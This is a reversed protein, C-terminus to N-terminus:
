KLRIRPDIVSYLLDVIFNCAVVIVALYLVLGQILPLDRTSISTSVLKGIGPLSFVNEIIISGGLVDTIIMGFITLVPILSNRLVHGRLIAGEAVGKSQATKVYDQREQQMVSVRVYRVLVASSGFSIALSPLLLSKVCDLPSQAWPTFGLSPLWKLNVSFLSILLISVCFAPVSLGLQSLMSAPLACPRGSHHALWVGVPLGIAATLLLSFLALLVTVSFGGAILGSVPQHYRYSTGLDGQLVGAIWQFFRIHIPQDLGMSEQLQRVQVPDADVGLIVTAPDGPLIQFVAFTIVSVLLLTVLFGAAKRLYYAM